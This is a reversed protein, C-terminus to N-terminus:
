RTGGELRAEPRGAMAGGLEELEIRLNPSVLFGAPTEITAWGPGDAPAPLLRIRLRGDSSETTRVGDPDRTAALAQDLLSLFLDFEASSLSGVEGFTMARGAFRAIARDIQARERKRKQALWVRTAEHDPVAAASGATSVAGRTRLRIPVEVPKADWWSLGPSALEPDAEALHFHRAPALGFAAHWLEHARGDDPCAEFWRALTRFDAARDVARIRRENLRALTRVLGVIADVAVGRLREVTPPISRSEDGLFWVRVGQWRALREERYAAAPDGSGLDPPVDKSRSAREVLSDIGRDEVARVGAAISAALRRLEEVFRHIYALLAQKYLVFREESMREPSSSRDLEGIFCNAEESLTDFATFLDHFRAYVDDPSPDAAYAAIAELADRIKVLMTAQLSGSRGATAEVQAVAAHAAEGVATLHYLLRRRYFDELKTVAATDHVAALNGWEVLKDLHRDLSAADDVDPALWRSERLRELVEAPRLEIVYHQRAEHFVEVIARYSPANEATVYRLASVDGLARRVGEGSTAGVGRM